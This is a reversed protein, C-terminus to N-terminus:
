DRVAPRALTRGRLPFRMVFRAGVGDHDALELTGGLQNLHARALFLGLGRGSEKTTSFAAFASERLEASVGPGRDQVM